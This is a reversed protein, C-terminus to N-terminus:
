PNSYQATSQTAGRVQPLALFRLPFIFGDLLLAAAVRRM